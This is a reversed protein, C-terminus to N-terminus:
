DINAGFLNDKKTIHSHESNNLRLNEEDTEEGEQAGTPAKFAAFINIGFIVLIALGFIFEVANLKELLMFALMLFYAGKGIYLELFHFNKCLSKSVGFEVLVYLAILPPLVAVTTVYFMFREYETEKTYVITEEGTSEDTVDTEVLKDRGWFYSIRVITGIFILFIANMNIIRMNRSNKGFCQNILRSKKDQAPKQEQM